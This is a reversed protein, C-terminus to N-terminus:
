RESPSRIVRSPTSGLRRARRVSRPHANSARPPPARRRPRRRAGPADCSRAAGCVSRVNSTTHHVVVAIQTSLRGPRPPVAGCGVHVVRRRAHVFPGRAHILVSRASGGCRANARWSRGSCRTTKGKVARGWRRLMRPTARVVSVGVIGRWRSWGGIGLCGGPDGTVCRRVSDRCSGRLVRLGPALPTPHHPSLCIARALPLVTGTASRDAFVLDVAAV